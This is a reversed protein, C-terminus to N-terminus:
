NRFQRSRIYAAADEPSLQSVEFETLKQGPQFSPGSNHANTPAGSGWPTEFRKQQQKPSKVTNVLDLISSQLDEGDQLKDVLKELTPMKDSAIEFDDGISGMAERLAGSKREKLEFAEVKAKLEDRESKLTKNDGRVKSLDGHLADIKEQYINDASAKPAPKDSPTEGKPAPKQEDVKDEPTVEVDDSM